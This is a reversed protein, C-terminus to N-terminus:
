RSLVRAAPLAPPPRPSAQAHQFLALPTSAPPQDCVFPGSVQGAVPSSLLHLRSTVSMFLSVAWSLISEHEPLFNQSSACHVPVFMQHCWLAGVVRRAHAGAKLALLGHGQQANLHGSHFGAHRLHHQWKPLLQGLLVAKDM